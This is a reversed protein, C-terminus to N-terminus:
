TLEDAFPRGSSLAILLLNAGVHDNSAVTAIAPQDAKKSHRYRPAARSSAAIHAAVELAIGM